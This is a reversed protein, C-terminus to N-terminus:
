LLRRLEANMYVFGHVPSKRAELNTDEKGKRPVPGPWTEAGHSEYVVTKFFADKSVKEM